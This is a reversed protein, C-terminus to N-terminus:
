RAHTARNPPDMSISSGASNGRRRLSVRLIKKIKGPKNSTKPPPTTTYLIDYKCYKNRSPIINAATLDTSKCQNQNYSKPHPTLHAHDHGGTASESTQYKQLDLITSDIVAIGAVHSFDSRAPISRDASPTASM